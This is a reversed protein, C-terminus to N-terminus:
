KFLDLLFSESLEKRPGGLQCLHKAVELSMGVQTRIRVVFNRECVFYRAPLRALERRPSSHIEWDLCSSQMQFLYRTSLRSTINSWRTHNPRPTSPPLAFVSASLPLPRWPKRSPREPGRALPHRRPVLLRRT